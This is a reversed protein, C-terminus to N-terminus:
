IRILGIALRVFRLFQSWSTTVTESPTRKDTSVTNLKASM